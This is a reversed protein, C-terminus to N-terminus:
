IHILSLAPVIFPEAGRARLAAVAEAIIEAIHAIGRSGATIAIRQGPRLSAIAPLRALEREVALGLAGERETSLEQRVPILRPLEVDFPPCIPTVHIM